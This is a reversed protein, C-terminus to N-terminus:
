GIRTTPWVFFLQLVALHTGISCFAMTHLLIVRFIKFLQIPYMALVKAVRIM